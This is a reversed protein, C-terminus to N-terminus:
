RAIGATRDSAQLNCHSLEQESEMRLAYSDDANHLSAPPLVVHKPPSGRIDVSEWIVLPAIGDQGIISLITVSRSCVYEKIM